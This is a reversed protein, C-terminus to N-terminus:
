DRGLETNIKNQGAEDVEKEKEADFMMLAEAKEMSLDSASITEEDSLPSDSKRWDQLNTDVKGPRAQRLTIVLSKCGRDSM